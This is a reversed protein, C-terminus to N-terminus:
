ILSAAAFAVTALVASSTTSALVFTRTQKRLEVHFGHLRDDFREMHHEIRGIRQELGDFRVEVRDLRREFAGMRSDLRDIDSRTAIDSSPPLLDMLTQAGPDGLVERLRTYLSDRATTM